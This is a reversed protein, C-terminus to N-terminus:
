FPLPCTNDPFSGDDQGKRKSTQCEYAGNKFAIGQSLWYGLEDLDSEIEDFLDEMEIDFVYPGKHLDSRVRQLARRNHLIRRTFRDYYEQDTSFVGQPVNGIKKDLTGM